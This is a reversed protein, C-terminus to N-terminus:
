KEPLSMVMRPPSFRSAQYELYANYQAETLIGKLKEALVAKREEMVPSVHSGGRVTGIGSSVDSARNKFEEDLEQTATRVLKEQSESLGLKRSVMLLEKERAEKRWNEAAERSKERYTTALDKGLIDELSEISAMAMEREEPTLERQNLERQAQFMRSLRERQLDDLSVFQAVHSIALDNFPKSSIPASRPAEVPVPSDAQTQPKAAESFRVANFQARKALADRRLMRQLRVDQTHARSITERLDSLEKALNGLASLQGVEVSKQRLYMLYFGAIVFAVVIWGFRDTRTKSEM